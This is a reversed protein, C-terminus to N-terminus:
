KTTHEAPHLKFQNVHTIEGSNPMKQCHQQAPVPKQQRKTEISSYIPRNEIKHKAQTVQVPGCTPLNALIQCKKQVTASGSGNKTGKTKMFNNKEADKYLM